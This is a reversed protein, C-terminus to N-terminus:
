ENKEEGKYIEPKPMWAVAETVFECGSDLYWGGDDYMFTDVGVYGSKYSILIEQDEDPLQCDLVEDCGFYEREEDDAKRLKFPIWNESAKIAQLKELSLKPQKNVLCRLGVVVTNWGSYFYFMDRNEEIPPILRSEDELDALLKKEDIAM